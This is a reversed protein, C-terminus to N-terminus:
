ERPPPPVSKMKRIRSYAASVEVGYLFIAASFFVWALFVAVSAVQGLVTFRSVDQMYWSFASFALRWLIAAILAGPWVDRFRMQANPVFYYLMSVVLIFMPVPLNALVFGRLQQLAPVTRILETFWNQQALQVSSVLVLTVALLTGASCLIIFAILKHKWFSPRKEVGWAHNIASTIAGFIGFSGWLAFFFGAVGVNLRIESLAQIQTFLFDLHGPVAQSVLQLLTADRDGVTVRGLVAMVLMLFPFMSILSYYAISSSFTINDSNYFELVGRGAARGYNKLTRGLKLLLLVLRNPRPTAPV